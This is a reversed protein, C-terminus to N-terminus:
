QDSPPLKEGNVGLLIAEETNDSKMEVVINNKSSNEKTLDQKGSRGCIKGKKYLFYLVSGLIALLLICIIIVAIVVGYSKAKVRFELSDAGFENGANCIYTTINSGVSVTVVSKVIEGTEIHPAEDLVKGDSTTWNITPVPFGRASCSLKVTKEYTEEETSKKMIEPSGQVYVPLVGRSEMGEIEPVSVVCKYTGATDFTVDKITLTHSKSVVKGDKFWAAETQLSSLANCTAELKGSKDVTIEEHDIVAPDLYNVFVETSGSVEDYTDIDLSSCVYVGSNLRTVSSLTWINAEMVSDTENHKITVLSSPPNANDKCHLEVSDGEKIKGKPSEVWVNVATAPYYVTVNIPDTETMRTAGPVFYSVECYFQADKDEKEVKMRLESRLSFLRSSETTVSTAVDVVGPINRLPVNGRYWTINPKPYGNKVECSGIKSPEKARVSIGTQVAEITPFNPKEFVKLKTRGEGIQGTVDKILCIFEVEDQLQVNEITLAVQGGATTSNVSIRGTFSTGEEVAKSMPDQIYIRLKEGIRTVYLWQVTTGGSGEDSTFMCTIQATEGLFVEVKDEVNVEITAWAGWANCLLLLGLLLSAADRLAM